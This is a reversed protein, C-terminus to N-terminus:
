YNLQLYLAFSTFTLAAAAICYLFIQLNESLKSQKLEIAVYYSNNKHNMKFFQDKEKQNLIHHKNTRLNIVKYNKM